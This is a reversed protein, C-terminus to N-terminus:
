IGMEGELGFRMARAFELSAATTDTANSNITIEQKLGSPGSNGRLADLNKPSLPIVAEDYRGEGINALIGGPQKQVIGGQALRPIKGIQIDVAGGTANRIAEGIGNLGDIAGNVLDIVMNIAGKVGNVIGEFIGRVFDGIGGFVNAFVEGVVPLAQGLWNFFPSIINEWLWSFIAGWMQFYMIIGAIVHKIVNEYLWTWVAAIAGIVPQIITEWLWTMALGIAKMANEWIQKGLETQTFFWVLAGVVAGIALAIWTLPNALLAVTWAWTATVAAWISPALVTLIVAAIGAIVWQNDVIWSIMGGIGTILDTLAPKVSNLADSFVGVFTAQLSGLAGEFTETSKAAEVAVPDNGLQMLATNFEESSIQGKEMAERFNGTFAGNKELAEQVKGSAGPIANALQNWNETTLKGAGATQTLVMGVSSFTDANGGAVANLNGAAEVLKDYNPVANAALQATTNQITALDYVTADAYKRTSKQLSAIQKDDVGAFSLTKAFKTTADSATVAEGALQQIDSIVNSTVASFVGAIAGGIAFNKTFGSSAEKGLDEGLQEGAGGSAKSVANAVGQRVESYMKSFDPLIEVYAQYFSDAM